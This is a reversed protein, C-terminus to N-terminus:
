KKKFYVVYELEILAMILVRNKESDARSSNHPIALFRFLPLNLPAHQGQGGENESTLDCPDSIWVNRMREENVQIFHERFDLALEM